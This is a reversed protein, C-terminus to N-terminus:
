TAQKIKAKAFIREVFSELHFHYSVLCVGANNGMLQEDPDIKELVRLSLEIHATFFRMNGENGVLLKTYDMHAIFRRSLYPRTYVLKATEGNIM